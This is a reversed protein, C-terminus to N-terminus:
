NVTAVKSSVEAATCGEAGFVLVDVRRNVLETALRGAPGIDHHARKMKMQEPKNRHWLKHDITIKLTSITKKKKNKRRKALDVNRVDGDDGRFLASSAFGVVQIHVGSCGTLPQLMRNLDELENMYAKDSGHPFFVQYLAPASTGLTFIGSDNAPENMRDFFLPGSLFLVSGTLIAIRGVVARIYSYRQGTWLQLSAILVFAFFLGCIGPIFGANVRIIKSNQSLHDHFIYILKLLIFIAAVLTLNSLSATWSWNIKAVRREDPPVNM